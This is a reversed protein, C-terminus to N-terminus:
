LIFREPIIPTDAFDKGHKNYYVTLSEIIHSNYRKIKKYYDLNIGKDSLIHVDLKFLQEHFVLSKCLSEYFTSLGAAYLKAKNKLNTSDFIHELYIDFIGEALVVTNSNYNYGYLKYYDSFLSTQLDIKYYRFSSNSDINRFVAITNNETLFGVFNSQLFEKIRFLRPDIQINNIRIFEDIDLILGKISTIDINSYKFRQKLYNIKNIFINENLVPLKIKNYTIGTKVNKIKEKVAEKLKEESVFKESIDKGEIKKLLKPFLGSKNCEASFCHFIPAELSIYLHYHSKNQNHECFPCRCIINKPTIKIPEGLSDKLYQVFIDEYIGIM